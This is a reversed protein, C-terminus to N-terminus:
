TSLKEKLLVQDGVSYLPTTHRRDYQRNQKAEAKIINGKPTHLKDYFQEFTLMRKYLSEEDGNESDRLSTEASTPLDLYIPLRSAKM